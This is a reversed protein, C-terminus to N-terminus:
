RWAKKGDPALVVGAVGAQQQLDQEMVPLTETRAVEVRGGRAEELEQDFLTALEDLLLDLM